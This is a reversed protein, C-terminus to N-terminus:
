AAAAARLSEALGSSKIPIMRLLHFSTSLLSEPYSHLQVTKPARHLPLCITFQMGGAMRSRRSASYLKRLNANSGKIASACLPLGVRITM